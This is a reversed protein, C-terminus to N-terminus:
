RGEMRSRRLCGVNRPDTISDPCWAKPTFYPIEHRDQSLVKYNERESIQLLQSRFGAAEPIVSVCSSGTHCLLEKPLKDRYAGDSGPEMLWDVIDLGFGVDRFGTKKDLFSQRAVGSTCGKRCVAASLQPTEIKIQQEDETVTYGDALVGALTVLLLSLSSYM